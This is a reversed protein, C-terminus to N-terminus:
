RKAVGATSHLLRQGCQVGGRASEGRVHDRLLVARLRIVLHADADVNAARHKVLCARFAEFFFRCRTWRARGAVTQVDVSRTWRASGAVSSSASLRGRREISVQRLQPAVQERAHLRARVLLLAHVREVVRHHGVHAGRLAMHAGPEVKGGLRVDM